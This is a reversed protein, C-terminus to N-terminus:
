GPDLPILNPSRGVLQKLERNKDHVREWGADWYQFGFVQRKDRGILQRAIRLQQELSADGVPGWLAPRGSHLQGLGAGSGDHPEHVAHESGAHQRLDAPQRQFRCEAHRGFVTLYASWGTDVIGTGDDEDPDLIGNRNRDNGFLLQPTVGKVLLLEELSDLPGNKAQYPPSLSSYYDSEAGSERPDDDPDLWDLISNAVDDTMNPLQMLMNYLTQGSSDIQMVANLNIKGSEDTVGYWFPMSDSGAYDPSLPAVISFHGQQSGSSQSQTDDQITIGQFVGANNFPNSNLTNTYLDPNSLIAAAYDVGSDALARAQAARTYSRTANSEGTMAASFLYASLALVATVILVALLVVGTRRHRPARRGTHGRLKRQSSTREQVCDCYM